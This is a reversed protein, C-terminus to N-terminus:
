TIRKGIYAVGIIGVTLNNTDISKMEALSFFASAFYQCVSNANCGFASVVKINKAKCFDLDIHDIGTTATAILKISSNNLLAEDCRTRTRIFLVDADKILSNCIESPEYYHIEATHEFIGKLFPIYKDAIIKIKKM